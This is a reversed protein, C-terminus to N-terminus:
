DLIRPFKFTIRVENDELAMGDTTLPQVFFFTILASLIALGTVANKLKEGCYFLPDSVVELGSLAQTVATRRPVM